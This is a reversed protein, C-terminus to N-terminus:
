RVEPLAEIVPAITALFGEAMLEAGRRAFHVEDTNISLDEKPIGHDADFYPIREKKFFSRLEENFRDRLADRQRYHLTASVFTAGYERCIGHMTKQNRLFLEINKLSESNWDSGNFPHSRAPPLVVEIGEGYSTYGLLRDLGSVTRCFLYSEFAIEPARMGVSKLQSPDFHRFRDGYDWRMDFDFTFRMDNIGDYAIVFDPHLDVGVFALNIVSMPSAYADQALNYVVFRRNPFRAALKRELIAPWTDEVTAQRTQPNVGAHWTTSGGFTILRIENRNNGGAFESGLFGYRNTHYNVMYDGVFEGYSPLARNENPRGAYPLFPHAVFRPTRNRLYRPRPDIERYHWRLFIEVFLLALLASGLITILRFSFGKWRNSVFAKMTNMGRIVM